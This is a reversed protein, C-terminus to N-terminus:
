GFTLSQKESVRRKFDECPRPRHRALGYKRLTQQMEQEPDIRQSDYFSKPQAQQQTQQQKKHARAAWGANLAFVVQFGVAAAFEGIADIHAAKLVSKFPAPPSRRALALADSDLAYFARDAETGGIRLLSPALAQALNRLRIRSFDYTSRNVTEVSAGKAGDPNWFRTPEAIQGLDVCVCLYRKHTFAVPVSSILLRHGASANITHASVAPKSSPSLAGFLVPLLLTNAVLELLTSLAM